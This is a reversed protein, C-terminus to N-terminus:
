AMSRRAGTTGLQGQYKGSYGVTNDFCRYFQIQAIRQGYELRIMSPGINALELTIQGNFGPDIFGATVHVALGWRGLTSKGAVQAAMGLPVRVSEVTSALCFDGPNLVLVDETREVYEPQQAVSVVKGPCPFLFPGSLGLDYSAPQLLREDYPLVLGMMGLEKHIADNGLIM